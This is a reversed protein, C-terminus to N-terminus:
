LEILPFSPSYLIGCEGCTKVEKLPVPLVCDVGDQPAEDEGCMITSARAIRIYGKEGWATGWSNRLLWFDGFDADSGVGVLEVVHDIDIRDTKCGNFVGSEYMFWASADMNVAVPGVTLVAELLPALENTPLDVWGSLKAVPPTTKAFGCSPADAGHGSTYPYSWESSLGGQEMIKAYALSPTGGGCGGTGGCELPNPTCDLIQQESLEELRGTALAFASEMTEVSGFAWCSGCNGQNKVPTVVGATRWDISEGDRPAARKATANALSASWSTAKRHRPGYLAAKSVGRRRALEQPLADTFENVGAKWSAQPDANHKSILALRESILAHRAALETSDYARHFDRTYDATTYGSLQHWKPPAAAAVAAFAAFLALRM